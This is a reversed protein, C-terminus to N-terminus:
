EGMADDSEELAAKAAAEAAAAVDAPVREFQRGSADCVWALELEFPKAGDGEHVAYLIKAIATVADACTLTALSLREIETKAAQRGKGIATGFYRQTNKFSPTPQFNQAFFFSAAGVRDPM